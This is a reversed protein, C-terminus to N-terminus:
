WGPAKVLQAIEGYGTPYADEIFYLKFMYTLLDLENPYQVGFLNCCFRDSVSVIGVVNM